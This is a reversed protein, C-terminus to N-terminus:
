SLCNLYFASLDTDVPVSKPGQMCYHRLFVLPHVNLWLTFIVTLPWGKLTLNNGAQNSGTLIVDLKAASLSNNALNFIGVM